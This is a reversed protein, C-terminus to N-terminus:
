GCKAYNVVEKQESQKKAIKSLKDTDIVSIYRDSKKIIGTIPSNDGFLRTALDQDIEKDEAVVVGVLSDAPIGFTEGNNVIIVKQPPETECFQFLKKIDIIPIITEKLVIAKPIIVGHSTIAGNRVISCPVIDGIVSIPIAFSEGELQFHLYKGEM